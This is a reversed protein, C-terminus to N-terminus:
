CRRHRRLLSTPQGPTRTSTTPPVERDDITGDGDLDLECEDPTGDGDCDESTGDAIDCTDPIGNGNCDNSQCEDPTGNGDCDSSTGDPSACEDPIGNGNCDSSTGGAIDDADNTGNDNCDFTQCEDPVGNEDFEGQSTGSGSIDCSDDIGNSNCDEFQLSAYTVDLSASLTVMIVPHTQGHLLGEVHVATDTRDRHDPGPGRIGRRLPHEFILNHADDFDVFLRTTSTSPVALSTISAQPELHAKDTQDLLGITM